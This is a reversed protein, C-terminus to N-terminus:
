IRHHLVAMNQRQRQWPHHPRGPTPRSGKPTPSAPDTTASRPSYGPAPSRASGQRGVAQEVLPLKRMQPARFVDGLRAAETDIGRSRGAQRLLARLQTVTLTGAASTHPPLSIVRAEPRTIGGRSDGFAALFGPFYERLHSRLMNHACTRAWVRRATLPPARIELLLPNM